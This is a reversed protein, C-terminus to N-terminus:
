LWPPAADNCSHRIARCSVCDHRTSTYFSARCQGASTLKGRWDCNKNELTATPEGASDDAAKTKSASSAVRAPALDEGHEVWEAGAGGVSCALLAAVCLLARPGRIWGHCPGRGRMGNEVGDAGRAMDLHRADSARPLHWTASLRPPTEWPHTGPHIGHVLTSGNTRARHAFTRENQRRSFPQGARPLQRASLRDRTGLSASPKESLVPTGLWLTAAV